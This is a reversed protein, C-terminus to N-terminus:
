RSSFLTLPPPLLATQNIHSENYALWEEVERGQCQERAGGGDGSGGGWKKM